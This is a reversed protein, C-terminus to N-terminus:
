VLNWPNLCLYRQLTIIRGVTTSQDFPLKQMEGIKRNPSKLVIKHVAPSAENTGQGFM